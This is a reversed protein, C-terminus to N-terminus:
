NHSANERGISKCCEAFYGAIELKKVLLEGEEPSRVPTFVTSGSGSLMTNSVGLESFLALLERITPYPGLAAKQLDNCMYEFRGPELIHALFQESLNVDVGRQEVARKLISSSYVRGTNVSLGPNCLVFHSEPLQLTDRLIEGRGTALATGGLLFFPVDSGIRSAIRILSDRGIKLSYSNCLANLVSAANSSGGGLGGGIPIRKEIRFTFGLDFGTEAQLWHVAQWVLNKEDVPCAMQNTHIEIRSPGGNEDITISDCLDVTQMVSRIEHYGDPREALVELTLNIKAPSQVTLM